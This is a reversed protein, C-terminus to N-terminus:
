AIIRVKIKSVFCFLFFLLGIFFTLFYLFIIIFVNFFPSHDRRSHARPSGPLWPSRLWPGRWGTRAWWRAMVKRYHRFQHSVRCFMMTTTTTTATAYDRRLLLAVKRCEGFSKGCAAIKARTLLASFSIIPNLYKALFM